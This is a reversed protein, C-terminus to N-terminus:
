SRAVPARRRVVLEWLRALLQRDLVFVAGVFILLCVVAAGFAGAAATILGADRLLSAPFTTVAGAAVAALLGILLSRGLWSPTVLGSDTSPRALVASVAAGACMGLSVSGALATVLWVDPIALRSGLVALIVVGWATVTVAGAARARHQALLTRSCLGLLGFGIVAPAFAAIPWALATTDGSGPGLVFVRAVPVATGVLLAAGLSALMIVQPGNDALVGAVPGAGQEAATALRPFILQLLPAVLVAYPLLYIANAWTFRTLAGQDGTQQASWNILLLSLQQLVLGAIGAAAIKTIVARDGAAFRLRPALRHGLRAMAVVTTLALTLVGATTGWGLISLASRTLQSLETAATPAAVAVFALYCSIVVVSSLLPALAAALFRSHAQLVGASVVALGYLWIQPVFMILLAALTVSSDVCTPKAFATAYIGAGLFAALAAPTLIIMTWTLLASVTQATEARRQAGVHRAVVPIVVSALVGGAVIEFLVNPLTNAANYVDGLCTDGVTKSFVLWRGFGLVRAALTIGAVGLAVSGFRV